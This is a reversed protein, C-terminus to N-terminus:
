HLGHALYDKGDLLPAIYCNSEGLPLRFTDGGGGGCFFNFEFENSLRHLYGDSLPPIIEVMICIGGGFSALDGSLSATTSITSIDSTNESHTPLSQYLFLSANTPVLLRIIKSRMLDSLRLASLMRYCNPM